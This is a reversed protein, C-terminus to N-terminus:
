KRACCGKVWLEKHRSKNLIQACALLDLCKRRSSNTVLQYGHRWIHKSTIITAVIQEFHLNAHDIMGFM